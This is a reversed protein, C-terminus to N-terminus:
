GAAKPPGSLETSSFLPSAVPIPSITSRALYWRYLPGTASIARTNHSFNGVPSSSLKRPVPVVVKLGNRITDRMKKSTNVGCRLRPYAISKSRAMLIREVINKAKFRADLLEANQHIQEALVFRIAVPNTVM